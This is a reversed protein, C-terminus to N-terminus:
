IIFFIGLTHFLGNQQKQKVRFFCTNIDIEYRRGNPFVIRLGAGQNIRPGVASGVHREANSWVLESIFNIYNFM